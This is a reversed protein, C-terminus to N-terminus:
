SLCLSNINFLIFQILFYLFVKKRISSVTCDCIAFLLGWVAFGGATIPVRLKVRSVTHSIVHGKPANRIGGVSHWILGGFLGISIKCDDAVHMRNPMYYVQFSSVSGLLGVLTM